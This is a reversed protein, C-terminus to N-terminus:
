FVFSIINNYAHLECIGILYFFDPEITHIYECIFNEPEPQNFSFARVGMAWINSDKAELSHFQKFLDSPNNPTAETSSINWLTYTELNWFGM